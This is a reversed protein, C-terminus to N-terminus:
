DLGKWTRGRVIASVTAGSVGFERGIETCSRGEDSLVRIKLVDIATLKRGRSKPRRVAADVDSYEADSPDRSM